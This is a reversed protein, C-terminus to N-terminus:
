NYMRNPRNYKKNVGKARLRIPKLKGDSGEFTIQTFDEAQILVAPRTTQITVKHVTKGSETEFFEKAQQITM